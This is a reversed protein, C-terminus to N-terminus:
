IQDRFVDFTQNEDLWCAFKTLTKMRAETGLGSNRDRVSDKVRKFRLKPSIRQDAHINEFVDGIIALRQARRILPQLWFPKQQEKDGRYRKKVPRHILRETMETSVRLAPKAPQKDVGSKGYVSKM